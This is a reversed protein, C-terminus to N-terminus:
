MKPFDGRGRWDFPVVAVIVANDAGQTIEIQLEGSATMVTSQLLACLVVTLLRNVRVKREM